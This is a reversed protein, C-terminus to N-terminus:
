KVARKRNRLWVTELTGGGEAITFDEGRYSPLEFENLYLTSM